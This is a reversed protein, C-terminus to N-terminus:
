SKDTGSYMFEVVQSVLVSSGFQIEIEGLMYINQTIITVQLIHDVPVQLLM